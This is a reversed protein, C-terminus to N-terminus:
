FPKKKRHSVWSTALFFWALSALLFALKYDKEMLYGLFYLVPASLCVALSLLSCVALLIKM